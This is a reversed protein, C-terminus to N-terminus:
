KIIKPSLYLWEGPKPSCYYVGWIYLQIIHYIVFYLVYVYLIQVFEYTVFCKLFWISPFLDTELFSFFTVWGHWVYPFNRVRVFPRVTEVPSFQPYQGGLFLIFIKLRFRFDFVPLSILLQCNEPHFSKGRRRLNLILFFGLKSM